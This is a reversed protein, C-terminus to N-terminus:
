APRGALGCFGGDAVQVDVAEGRLYMTGPEIIQGNRRDRRETRTVVQWAMCGSGVCLPGPGDVLQQSAGFTAARFCLKTKAEDETM